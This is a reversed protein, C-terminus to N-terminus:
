LLSSIILFAVYGVVPVPMFARFVFKQNKFWKSVIGDAAIVLVVPLLGFWCLYFMVGHRMELCQKDFNYNVQSQKGDHTLTFENKRREAEPRTISLLGNGSTNKAGSWRCGPMEDIKITGKEGDLSIKYFGYQDEDPKKILYFSGFVPYDQLIIEVVTAVKFKELLLDCGYEKSFHYLTTNHSAGDFVDKERNIKCFESLTDTTLVHCAQDESQPLSKQPLIVLSSRGNSKSLGQTIKYVTVYCGNEIYATAASPRFSFVIGLLLISLAIKRKQLHYSKMM